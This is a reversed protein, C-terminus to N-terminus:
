KTTNNIPSIEEIEWRNFGEQDVIRKINYKKLKSPDCPVGLRPEQIMLGHYLIKKIDIIPFLTGNMLFAMGVQLDKGLINYLKDELYVSHGWDPFTKIWIQHLKKKEDEYDPFRLDLAEGTFINNNKKNNDEKELGM